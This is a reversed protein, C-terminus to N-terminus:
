RTLTLALSSLRIMLFLTLRVSIIMVILFSLVMVRILDLFLLIKIAVFIKLLLSKQKVLPMQGSDYGYYASLAISKLRTKIYDFNIHKNSITRSQFSRALKEFPTLFSCYDLNNPYISFRLGRSLVKKEISSLEYNSYNFIVSDPDIGSKLYETLLTNLKRSQIFKVHQISKLNM